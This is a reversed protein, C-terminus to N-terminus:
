IPSSRRLKEFRWSALFRSSEWLGYIPKIPRLGVIALTV